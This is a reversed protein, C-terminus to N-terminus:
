LEIHTVKIRPKPPPRNANSVGQTHGIMGIVTLKKRLREFSLFCATRSAIMYPADITTIYRNSPRATVNSKPGAASLWSAVFANKLTKKKRINSTKPADNRPPKSILNGDDHVFLTSAFALLVVPIRLMKRMANVRANTDNEHVPGIM